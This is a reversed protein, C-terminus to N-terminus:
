ILINENLAKSQKTVYLKIGDIDNYTNIAKKTSPKKLLLMMFIQGMDSLFIYM